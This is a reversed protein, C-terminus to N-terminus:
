KLNLQIHSLRQTTKLYAFYIETRELHGKFITANPGPENLELEQISGLEKSDTEAHIIRDKLKLMGHFASGAGSKGGGGEYDLFVANIEGSASGYLLIGHDDYAYAVQGAQDTQNTRSPKGLLKSFTALCSGPRVAMGGFHIGDTQVELMLAEGTRRGAATWDPAPPRNRDAATDGDKRGHNSLARAGFYAGTCLLIGALFWVLVGPGRRVHTSHTPQRSRSSPRPERNVPLSSRSPAPAPETEAVFMPRPTVKRGQRLDNILQAAKGSDIGRHTLAEIIQKDDQRAQILGRALEIDSQLIDDTM